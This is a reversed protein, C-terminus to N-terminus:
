LHYAPVIMLEEHLHPQAALIKSLTTQAQSESLGLMGADFPKLNSNNVIVYQEEKISVASKNKFSKQENSASLESRGVMGGLTMLQFMSMDFTKLVNLPVPNPDFDSTIVEFEVPRNVGYNVLIADTAKVRVGNKQSEFSASKLKDADSMDKYNSPAFKDTVGEIDMLKNGIRVETYDVQKIDSPKLNGFKSIEYSLPLINQGIRLSGFAQMLILDKNPALERLTVLDYRNPPLEAVWNRSLLAQEQVLPLVLVGVDDATAGDGWSIDFHIKISIFLIKFKVSGKARWPAPGSIEFDLELSFLTAGGMKIAIGAKIGAIFKFPNFQFLVDFQLYGEISFPGAKFKLEIKAGFQFTNSTVAIYATIAIKPNPDLISITFRKMTPISLNAPPTFSPHFGGVSVVFGPESGWSVRVCMDGEITLVEIIKSDYLSADFALMKRDFDLLGIFNLQLRLLGRQSTGINIKLVGLIALKFPNAFELALGFQIECLGAGWSIKAMLGVIFQDKRPPFIAQIQRIITPANAVVDEPFLISDIANNRVSELLKDANITRHLGLIGGLGTLFFGFGLAFGPTFSVSLIILLSFGDSVTGSADPIGKTTIIGIAGVQIVSQISLELAGAYQGNDPDFFLFGGGKVVTADVRIGIGRPPQPAVNFDMRGTGAPPDAQQSGTLKLGMRDVSISLPGLVVSFAVSLETFFGKPDDTSKLQLYILQITVPGLRLHMPLTISFGSGGDLYFGKKKSLGLGLDFAIKTPGEMFSRMFGNDPVIFIATEKFGFTIGADTTSAKVLIKVPGLEFRTKDVSGFVTKLEPTGAEREFGVIVTGDGLSGTVGAETGVRIFMKGTDFKMVARWTESLKPKVEGSGAVGILFAPGGHVRPIFMTSLYATGGIKSGDPIHGKDSVAITLIRNSIQNAMPSGVTSPLDLGLRAAKIYGKMLSDFISPALKGLLIFVGALGIFYVDSLRQAQEENDLDHALGFDKFFNGIVKVVSVIGDGTGANQGIKEVGNMFAIFDYVVPSTRRIDELFYYELVFAVIESPEFDSGQSAVEAFSWVSDVVQKADSVFSLFADIDSNAIQSNAYSDINSLVAPPITVAQGGSSMGLNQLVETVAGSNETLPRVITSRFWTAFNQFSNNNTATAM